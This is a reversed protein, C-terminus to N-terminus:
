VALGLRRALLLVRMRDLLDLEVGIDLLMVVLGLQTADDLEHGLSVFHLHREHKAPPLIRVTIESELQDFAHDGIAPLEGRDIHRRLEDSPM